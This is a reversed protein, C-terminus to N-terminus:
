DFWPPHSRAGQTNPLVRFVGVLQAIKGEYDKEKEGSRPEKRGQTVTPHESPLQSAQLHLPPLHVILTDLTCAYRKKRAKLARALYELSVGECELRTLRPLPAADIREPLESASSLNTPSLLISSVDVNCVSQARPDTGHLHLPMTPKVGFRLVLDTVGPLAYMAGGLIEHRLGQASAPIDALVLRRVGPFYDDVCKIGGIETDVAPPQVRIFRDITEQDCSHFELSQLSPARLVGALLRPLQGDGDTHRPTTADPGVLVLRVLAPLDIVPHPIPAEHLAGSFGLLLVLETLNSASTVIMCRQLSPLRINAISLSTLRPPAIFPPSPWTINSICNWMAVSRLKPASRLFRELSPNHQVQEIWADSRPSYSPLLNVLQLRLLRPATALHAISQVISMLASCSAVNACFSRWRSAHPLLLRMVSLAADGDDRVAPSSYPPFCVNPPATWSFSIDLLCTSGSRELCLKTWPFRCDSDNPSIRHWVMACRLSISRWRRCVASVALSPKSRFRRDYQSDESTETTPANTAPPLLVLTVFISEVVEAPLIGFVGDDAPRESTITAVPLLWSCLVSPPPLQLSVDSRRRVKKPSRDGGTLRLLGINPMPTCFLVCRSVISYKIYQRARKTSCLRM